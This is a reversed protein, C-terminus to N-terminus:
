VVEEAGMALWKKTDDKERHLKVAMSVRSCQVGFWVGFWVGYGVGYRVGYWMGYWDGFWM